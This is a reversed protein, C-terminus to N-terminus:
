LVEEETVQLELLETVHLEEEQRALAEQALHIQVGLVGDGSSM